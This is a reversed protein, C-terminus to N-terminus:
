TKQFTQNTNWSKGLKRRLVKLAQEYRRHATSPSIEMLEALQDFTLGGWIRAVIIEREEIDLQKLADTAAQADLEHSEYNEFWTKTTDAVSREHHRRRNTSRSASIAGNRVVRYLWGVMNEPLPNQECLRIFAVQVVDEPSNTWQAAYLELAAAYEDVLQGLQEPSITQM